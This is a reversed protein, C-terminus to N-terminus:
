ELLWDLATDALADLRGPTRPGVYGPATPDLAEAMRRVIARLRERSVTYVVDGERTGETYWPTGANAAQTDTRRVLEDVCAGFYSADAQHQLQRRQLEDVVRRIAGLPSPAFVTVHMFTACWEDPSGIINGVRHLELTTAHQSGTMIWTVWVCTSSTVRRPRFELGGVCLAETPAEQTM